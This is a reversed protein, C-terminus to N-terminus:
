RIRGGGYQWPLKPRPPKARSETSGGGGMRRVRQRTQTEKRNVIRALGRDWLTKYLQALKYDQGPGNRILCAHLCYNVLYIFYRHPLESDTASTTIQRFHEIRVNRGDQYFRRPIGWGETDGLPWFNPVARPVGWTGEVEPDDLDEVDRVVGWSGEVTYIDAMEAPKRIKRFTRPGEHRWSYAIVEGETEEYQDDSQRLRRPTTAEISRDDYTVRDIAVLNEPLQVTARMATSASIAALYHLDSPSTHNAQWIEDHEMEDDDIYDLEEPYTYSAVDYFFDVLYDEEWEATHSFGAPLNEAYLADWIINVSEAMERAGRQLYGDVEEYTWVKQASDGLRHLVRENLNALRALRVAAEEMEFLFM